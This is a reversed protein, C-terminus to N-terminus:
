SVRCRTGDYVCILPISRSGLTPPHRLSYSPDSQGLHQTPSLKASGFPFFRDSGRFARGNALENTWSTATVKVRRLLRGRQLGHGHVGKRSPLLIGEQLRGFRPSQFLTVWNYFTHCLKLCTIRQIVTCTQNQALIQPNHRQDFLRLQKPMYPSICSLVLTYAETTLARLKRFISRASLPM